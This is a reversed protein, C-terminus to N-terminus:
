MAIIEFFLSKLDNEKLRYEEAAFEFTLKIYNAANSLAGNNKAGSLKIETPFSITAKQGRIILPLEDQDGLIVKCCSLLASDELNDFYMNITFGELTDADVIGYRNNWLQMDVVLKNEKSYTGAYIEKQSKFPEDGMKVFWTIQPTM